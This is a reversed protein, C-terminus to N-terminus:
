NKAKRYRYMLLAAAIWWVSYVTVSLLFFIAPDSETILSLGYIPGNILTMAMNSMPDPFGSDHLYIYNIVLSEAMMIAYILVVRQFEVNMRNRYIMVSISAIYFLSVLVGTNYGEIVMSFFMFSFVVSLIHVILLMVYDYYNEEEVANRVENKDALNKKLSEFSNDIRNIVERTKTLEDAVASIQNQYESATMISGDFIQQLPVDFENCINIIDEITPVASANEWRRVTRQSVGLLNAMELQSLGHQKRLLALQRAFEPKDLKKISM